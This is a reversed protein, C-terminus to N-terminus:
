LYQSAHLLKLVLRNCLTEVSSSFVPSEYLFLIFYHYYYYYCLLCVFALCLHHLLLLFPSFFVHFCFSISHFYCNVSYLMTLAFLILYFLSFVIVIVLILSIVIEHKTKNKLNFDEM